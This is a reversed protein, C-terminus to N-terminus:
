PNYPGGKAKYCGIAAETMRSLVGPSVVGTILASMLMHGLVAKPVNATLMALNVLMRPSIVKEKLAKDLAALVKCAACESQERNIAIM